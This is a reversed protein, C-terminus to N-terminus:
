LLRYHSEMSLGTPSISMLCIIVRFFQKIVHKDQRPSEAEQVQTATEKGMNPFKKAIIEEFIKEFGKNKEERDPVRLFRVNTCKINGWFDDTYKQAELLYSM